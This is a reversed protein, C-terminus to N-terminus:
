RSPNEWDWKGDWYSKNNKTNFKSLREKMMGGDVIVTDRSENVTISVCKISCM